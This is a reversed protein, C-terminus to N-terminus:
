KMRVKKILNGVLAFPFLFIGIVLVMCLTSFEDVLKSANTLLQGLEELGVKYFDFVDELPKKM